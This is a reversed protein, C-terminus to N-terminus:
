YCRTEVERVGECGRGIGNAMRKLSQLKKLYAAVTKRTKADDNETLLTPFTKSFYLTQTSAM